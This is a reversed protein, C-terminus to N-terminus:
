DDGPILDPPELFGGVNEQGLADMHQSVSLIVVEGHQQVQVLGKNDHLLQSRVGDLTEKILFGEITLRQERVRKVDGLPVANDAESCKNDM